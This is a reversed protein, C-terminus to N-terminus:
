SKTPRRPPQGPQLPAQAPLGKPKDATRGPRGPKPSPQNPLNDPPASVPPDRFPADDGLPHTADEYGRALALGRWCSFGIVECSIMVQHRGKSGQKLAFSIADTRSPASAEPEAM